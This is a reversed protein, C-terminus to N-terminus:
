VSIKYSFRCCFLAGVGGSGRARLNDAMAEGDGQLHGHFVAEILEEILRELKGDVEEIKKEDRKLRRRNAM